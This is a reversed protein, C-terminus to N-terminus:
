GNFGPSGISRNTDDNHKKDKKDEDPVVVGDIFSQAPTKIDPITQEGRHSYIIAFGLKPHKPHRCYLSYTQLMLPEREGPAILAKNDKILADITVCPYPRANSYNFEVQKVDFRDKENDEYFGQKIVSLFEESGHTQKLPFLVVQAAMTEKPASGKKLFAFNGMSADLLHWGPSDPAHITLYGREFLQNPTVNPETNSGGTTACGTLLMVVAAIASFGAVAQNM